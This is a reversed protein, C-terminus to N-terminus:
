GPVPSRSIMVVCPWPAARRHCIPFTASFSQALRSRRHGQDPGVDGSRHEAAKGLPHPHTAGHSRPEKDDDDCEQGRRAGRDPRGRPLCSGRRRSRTESEEAGRGSQGTGCTLGASRTAMRRSAAGSSGSATSGRPSATGGASRATTLSRTAVHCNHRAEPSMGPTSPSKVASPIRRRSPLARGKEATRCPQADRDDAYEPRASARRACRRGRRPRDTPCRYRGVSDSITMTSCFSSPTQRMSWRRAGSSGTPAAPMASRFGPAGGRASNRWGIAGPGPTGTRAGPSVTGIRPASTARVPMWNPGAGTSSGASRHRVGVPQCESACGTTARPSM